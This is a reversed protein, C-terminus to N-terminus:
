KARLTIQEPSFDFCADEIDPTYAEGDLVFGNEKIAEILAKFEGARIANMKEEDASIWGGLRMWIKEM